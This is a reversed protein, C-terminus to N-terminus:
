LRELPISRHESFMLRFTFCFVSLFQRPITGLYIPAIGPRSFRSFMALSLFPSRLWPECVISAARPPGNRIHSGVRTGPVVYFQRKTNSTVKLSASPRIFRASEELGQIKLPLDAHLHTNM